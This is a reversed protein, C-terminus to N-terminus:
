RLLGLRKLKKRIEAANKYSFKVAKGEQQGDFGSGFIKSMDKDELFIPDNKDFKIKYAHIEYVTGETEVGPLSYPWKVILFLYYEYKLYEKFVSALEPIANGEQDFVGIPIDNKKYDQFSIALQAPDTWMTTAVIWEPSGGLDLRVKKESTSQAGQSACCLSAAFFGGSTLLFSVLLYVFRKNM